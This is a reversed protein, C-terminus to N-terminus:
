LREVSSMSVWKWILWRECISGGRVRIGTSCFVDLERRAMCDESICRNAGGICFERIERLDICVNSRGEEIVAGLQCLDEEHSVEDLSRGEKREM